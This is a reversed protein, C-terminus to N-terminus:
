GSPLRFLSEVKHKAEPLNDGMSVPEKPYAASHIFVYEKIKPEKFLTGLHRTGVVVSFEEELNSEGSTDIYSINLKMDAAKLYM